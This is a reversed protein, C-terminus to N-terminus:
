PAPAATATPSKKVQAAVAVFVPEAKDNCIDVLQAIEAAGDPLAQWTWHGAQVSGRWAHHAPRDVAYGQSLGWYIVELMKARAEGNPSIVEEGCTITHDFQICRNLISMSLQMQDAASLDARGLSSYAVDLADSLRPPLTPRLALVQSAIGAVAANVQTESALADTKKARLAELDKAEDARKAKRDALQKELDDAREDLQHLTTAMLRQGYAWDSKLRAVEMRTKIWDRVLAENADPADAHVSGALVLMLASFCILRDSLTVTMPIIGGDHLM